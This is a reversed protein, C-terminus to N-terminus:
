SKTETGKGSLWSRRPGPSTAYAISAPISLELETGSDLESWVTLKGGLLKARERMGRLGYHGSRSGEDLNKPDIGKGDDRVRSRFQREDYRIEVEIRNAQAHRFANRLAEAAIRYVEDRLIPHLVQPTGEVVVNFEAASPNTEAAALEEGLTNIALALDNAVVTSSRLGQIADRGETIAQAAQDIASELTKRAEDPRKPLLNTAAQFRLLVGHFGQLLTDHLERAIRTRENVREELRMNFQRALQRLRLQYLAWLLTVLAAVCSLRFWSTQYYAPAISFDLFTGAENWVGSNNCATVRFRYKGPALNSYQVERDNVVERWDQDQGELEFRFHVKEPVVLSLATYDISLDRVLPPLRLGGAPDYTKGDATIQEIHVPPPLKNFSFERRDLRRPDIVFVGKESVYWLRGDMSKGVRPSLGGAVAASRLGDSNDFVTAQITRKPDTVWKDMEPQAIRVLGCAMYLWFSHADDEVVEHVSGCPLGNQSSLTAVRGDKMRSLGSETAVWLTGDRDLQLGNVRGEGLGGAVNYSARVQGDKFYAVGGQSFGLWLGGQLPDAVLTLALGQAGLRAWPIQEVAGGRRLRYLSQDQSIWFDGASDETISHAWGGPMARVPIFRDSELYAAGARSFVWIRGRHDQYLSGPSDDPLGSDNIERVTEPAPVRRKRYLTLHGDDWRDLGNRTGLWVSGDRSPLVSEVYSNILGQRVPITIISFDRFRDLGNNTCVWVNGERDELLDETSDSSLGDPQTFQDTRGQHVHLLGRDITGIWLSGHRDRLLWFPNFGPVTGPLPYASVKGDVIQMIGGRTAILLAGNDDETLSHIEAASGSLPILVPAGPKWRWLRTGTGAWLNGKEDEYLTGVGLGFSGDEGYCHVRGNQIACLRWTPITEVGAWVTGERDELLTDVRQGPVEPYLTLKGDKWSALGQHTGIWLTGDRSVLLRQILSSPLHQNGRPQWPVSRVGDFRFLGFETGLWLYGDPTQAITHITGKGFGESIKWSTHAYQSVELSPDLASACPCLALSICALLM